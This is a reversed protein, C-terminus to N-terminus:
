SDRPSPSTYLLCTIDIINGNNTIPTDCKRKRNNLFGTNLDDSITIPNNNNTGRIGFLVSPKIDDLVKDLNTATAFLRDGEQDSLYGLLSDEDSRSPSRTVSVPDRYTPRPKNRYDNHPTTPNDDSDSNESDDSDSLLRPPYAHKNDQSKNLFNQLNNGGIGPDTTKKTAPLTLLQEICAPLVVLQSDSMLDNVVNNYVRTIAEDNHQPFIQLLEDRVQNFSM